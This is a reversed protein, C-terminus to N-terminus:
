DPRATRRGATATRRASPGIREVAWHMDTELFVPQLDLVVPLKQMRRIMDDTAM